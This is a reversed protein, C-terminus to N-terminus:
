SHIATAEEVPFQAEIVSTGIGSESGAITQWSIDRGPGSVRYGNETIWDLLARYALPIDVLPGQHMTSAMRVVAPLTRFCVEGVGAFPAAVPLCVEIDWDCDRYEAEHYITIGPGGAQIGQAALGWRLADWLLGQDSPTALMARASAVPLAEVAKLVVEYRPLSGEQEIQRLCAQIRNLRALAEARAQEAEAQKLRLMGRMQEPSIGEDLIAAVQELRFGLEKLALIRNLRPLQAVDYYRYATLPDIYYPKLLGMEDYFRLTKASVQCLRSFESIKYV